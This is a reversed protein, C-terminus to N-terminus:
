TTEEGESTTGRTSIITSSGRSILHNKKCEDGYGREAVDPDYLPHGCYICHGLPERTSMTQSIARKTETTHKAGKRPHEHTDYYAKMRASLQAREESTWHTRPM